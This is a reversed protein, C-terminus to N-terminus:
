ALLPECVGWRFVRIDYPVWTGDARIIGTVYAIAGM